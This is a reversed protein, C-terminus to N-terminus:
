NIKEMIAWVGTYRTTDSYSYKKIRNDKYHFDKVEKATEGRSVVYFGRKELDSIARDLEENDKRRIPPIRFKTGKIAREDAYM